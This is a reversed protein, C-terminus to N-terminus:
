DGTVNFAPAEKIRLDLYGRSKKDHIQTSIQVLLAAKQTFDHSGLWVVLGDLTILIMNEPDTINLESVAMGREELAVVAETVAALQTGDLLNEGVAGEVPIVGTLLPLGYNQPDQTTGLIQGDMSIELLFEGYPVLVLPKKEVVQVHLTRPLLRKIEAKEVRPIMEVRQQLQSPSVKWINSGEGVQLSLLIQAEPTHTNGKITIHSIAFYDSRIFVIFTWVVLFFILIFLLRKRIVQKSGDSIQYRQEEVVLRRRYFRDM